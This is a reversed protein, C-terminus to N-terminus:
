LKPLENTVAGIELLDERGFGICPISPNYKHRTRSELKKCSILMKLLEETSLEPFFTEFGVWDMNVSNEVTCGDRFLLSEFAGQDLARSMREITGVSTYEGTDPNVKSYTWDVGTLAKLEDEDNHGAEGVGQLDPSPLASVVSQPVGLGIALQFVEGKSLMAIPNTDVEGDGGKQYFRLWRDECENGTGHRIGNGMLRNLYRGIPARICSRLSGNVTPDDAIRSAIVEKSDDLGAAFAGQISRNVILDFIDSLNLNILPVGFTEAVEIARQESNKSSDISSYVATINEPGVAKALLGLMVASDVGGSVDLQARTIGVKEHYAKIGNVRNEILLKMDRVPM